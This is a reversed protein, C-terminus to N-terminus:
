VGLDAYSMYDPRGAQGDYHIEAGAIEQVPVLWVIFQAIGDRVITRDQLKQGRCDVLTRSDFDLPDYAGATTTVHVLVKETAKTAVFRLHSTLGDARTGTVLVRQQEDGHATLELVLADLEPNGTLRM